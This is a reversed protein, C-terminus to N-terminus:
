KSLINDILDLATLIDKATGGISIVRVTSQHPQQIHQTYKSVDLTQFWNISEHLNNLHLIVINCNSKGRLDNLNQYIIDAYKHRPCKVYAKIIQYLSKSKISHMSAKVTSQCHEKIQDQTMFHSAPRNPQLQNNVNNSTGYRQGVPYNRQNTNTGSNYRQPQQQNINRDLQRSQTTNITTNTNRTASQRQNNSNPISKVHQNLVKGSKSPKTAIQNIPNEESIINTDYEILDNIYTVLNNKSNEILPKNIKILRNMDFLDQGIYPVEYVNLKLIGAYSYIENKFTQNIYKKIHGFKIRKFFNVLNIMFYFYNKNISFKVYFEKFSMLNEFKCPKIFKIWDKEIDKDKVNTMDELIINKPLYISGALSINEMLISNLNLYNTKEDYSNIISLDSIRNPAVWKKNKFSLIITIVMCCESYNFNKLQLYIPGFKNNIPFHLTLKDKPIFRYLQNICNRINKFNNTDLEDDTEEDDFEKNNFKIDYIKKRNFEIPIFIVSGKIIHDNGALYKKIKEFCRNFTLDEYFENTNLKRIKKKSGISVNTILPQSNNSKDKIFIDEEAKSRPRKLSNINNSM